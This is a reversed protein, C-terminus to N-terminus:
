WWHRLTPWRGFAKHMVLAFATMLLLDGLVISVQQSGVGWAVVPAFPIGALRAFLDWMLPLFSTAVLDYVTLVGALVTIDRAKMGGQVWLNTARVVALILVTNNVVLFPVSTAGFRLNTWVDAGLLM